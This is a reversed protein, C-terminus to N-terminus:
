QKNQKGFAYTDDDDNEDIQFLANTKRRQQEEELKSEFFDKGDAGGKTEEDSDEYDFISNLKTGREVQQEPTTEKLDAGGFLGGTPQAYSRQNAQGLVPPANRNQSATTEAFDGDDDGFM